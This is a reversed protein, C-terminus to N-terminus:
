KCIRQTTLVTTTATSGACMGVAPNGNVDFTQTCTVGNSTSSQMRRADDYSFSLTNTQRGALMVTGMTARGVADWATYTTTTRQGSPRSEAVVLVPRKQADYEITSVNTSDIRSGAVTSTTGLALQRPPIVAVEDVVDAITTHRTVSVSRFKQGTSDSYDNTCTGEVAAVDFTCSGNITSTIPGRTEIRYTAVGTRCAGGPGGGRRAQALPEEATADCPVLATLCGYLGVLTAIQARITM